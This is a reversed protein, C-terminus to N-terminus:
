PPGGSRHPVDTSVADPVATSPRPHLVMFVSLAIMWAFAPLAGGLDIPGGLELPGTSVLVCGASALLVCASGIGASSLSAPLNGSRAGASSAGLAFVAFGFKSAAIAVMGVDNLARVLVRDALSSASFAAGGFIIMGFLMLVIGVLGGGYAAVMPDPAASQARSLHDRVSGLFWVFAASAMGTLAVGALIESRKEVFVRAVVDVPDDARPPPGPLVIAVLLLTAFVVGSAADLQRRRADSV